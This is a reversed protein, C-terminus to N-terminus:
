RGLSQVALATENQLKEEKRNEERRHRHLQKDRLKELSQAERDAKLLSQRHLDIEGALTTLRTNLRSEESDLMAAYREIEVVGDVDVDGTPAARRRRSQLRKREDALRTLRDRLDEENRRAEALRLRCEDRATQRLRLLTALQFRFEAM